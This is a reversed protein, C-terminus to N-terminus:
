LGAPTVIVGVIVGVIRREGALVGVRVVVVPQDVGVVVGGVEVVRVVM